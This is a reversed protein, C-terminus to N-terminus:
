TDENSVIISSNIDFSTTRWWTYHHEDSGSKVLVGDEASLTIKVIGKYKRFKPLRILGSDPVSDLVSLGSAMVQNYGTYNKEPYLELYSRFDKESIQNIDLVFRYFIDGDPILIEEPPCGDPLKSVWEIQHSKEYNDLTDPTLM